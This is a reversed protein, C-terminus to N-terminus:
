AKDTHEYWDLGLTGENNDAVSTFKFVYETNQKLIFEQRAGVQGGSKTGGVYRAFIQCNQLATLTAASTITLNSTNASNRNNNAPTVADGGSVNFNLAEGDDEFVEFLAMTNCELEWVMHSWKAVNPTVIYYSLPSAIDFDNLATSQSITYASGGHIEHHAYDIVQLSFTSADMRLSEYIAGDYTAWIKKEHAM